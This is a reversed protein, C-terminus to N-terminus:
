IKVMAFYNHYGRIATTGYYVKVKTYGSEIMRNYLEEATENFKSTKLSWGNKIMENQRKGSCYNVKM